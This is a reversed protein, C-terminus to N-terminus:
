AGMAAVSLSVQQGTNLAPVLVFPLVVARLEPSMEDAFDLPTVGTTM